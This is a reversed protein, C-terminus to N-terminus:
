FLFNCNRVLSSKLSEIVQTWVFWPRYTFVFNDYFALGLIFITLSANKALSPSLGGKEACGERGQGRSAM